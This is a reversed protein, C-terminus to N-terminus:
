LVTCIINEHSMGEVHWVGEFAEDEQDLEYQVIKPVVQLSVGRLSYHEQPLASAIRLMDLTPGREGIQKRNLFDTYIEHDRLGERVARSYSYISEFPLACHFLESLQTYLSEYRQRPVLNNIYDRITVKGNEAIDFYTPLWQYKSDEYPRDWVDRPSLRPEPSLPNRDELIPPPRPDLLIPNGLQAPAPCQQAVASVAKVYCFLAPHVLDRLVQKSHPHYDAPTNTVISEISQRLQQQLAEPIAEDVYIVGEQAPKHVLRKEIVVDYVRTTHKAKKNYSMEMLPSRAYDDDASSALYSEVSVVYAGKEVALVKAPTSIVFEQKYEESLDERDKKSLYKERKFVKVLSPFVFRMEVEEGVAAAIHKTSHRRGKEQVEGLSEDESEDHDAKQKKHPSKDRVTDEKKEPPGKEKEIKGQQAHVDVLQKASFRVRLKLKFRWLYLHGEHDDGWEPLHAPRGDAPAIKLVDCGAYVKANNKKLRIKKGPYAELTDNKGGDEDLLHLGDPDIALLEELFSGDSFSFRLNAM